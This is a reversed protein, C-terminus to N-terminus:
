YSQFLGGFGQQKPKIAEQPCMEMSCLCSIYERRLFESM